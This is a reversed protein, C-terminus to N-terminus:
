VKMLLVADQCVGAIMSSKMVAAENKVLWNYFCPDRLPHMDNWKDELRSVKYDFECVNVSQM